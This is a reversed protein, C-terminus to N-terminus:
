ITRLKKLRNVLGSTVSTLSAEFSVSQEIKDMLM